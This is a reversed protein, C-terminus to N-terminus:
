EAGDFEFVDHMSGDPAEVAVPNLKFLGGGAYNCGRDGREDHHAKSRFAEAAGRRWRGICSFAVVREADPIGAEKFDGLSQVLGCSPCRFRWNLSDDGFRTRAEATWEDYRLRRKM